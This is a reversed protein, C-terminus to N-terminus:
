PFTTVYPNEYLLYGAPIAILCSIVVLAIFDKSLMRWLRFVPAGMVKRIGIEKTRQEAIFSSLGLLGLCSIFIALAAFIGVLSGVRAEFSFKEAFEDDAFRYEFPTNPNLKIFIRNLAALAERAPSMPNIKVNIFRARDTDINGNITNHQLVAAISAYHEHHKNILCKM